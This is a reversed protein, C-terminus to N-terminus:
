EKVQLKEVLKQAKVDVATEFRYNDQIAVQHGGIFAGVVIAVIALTKFITTVKVTRATKEAEIYEQVKNTNSKKM